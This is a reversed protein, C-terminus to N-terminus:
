RITLTLVSYCQALLMNYNSQGM